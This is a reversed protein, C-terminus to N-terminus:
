SNQAAFNGWVGGGGGLFGSQVFFDQGILVHLFQPLTLIKDVLIKDLFQPVRVDSLIGILLNFTSINFNM